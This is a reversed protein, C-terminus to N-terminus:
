PRPVYNGEADRCVTYVQVVGPEFRSIGRETRCSVKSRDREANFMLAGGIILAVLVAAGAIVIATKM